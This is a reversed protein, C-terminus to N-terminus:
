LKVGNCLTVFIFSLFGMGALCAFYQALGDDTSLYNHWDPHSHNWAYPAYPPTLEAEADFPQPDVPLDYQNAQTMWTSGNKDFYLYAAQLFPRGLTTIQSNPDTTSRTYCRDPSKTLNGPIIISAEGNNFTVEMDNGCMWKPGVATSTQSSPLVIADSQLDVEITTNMTTAPGQIKALFVNHGEELFYDAGTVPRLQKWSKSAIRNADYVGMLTLSGNWVGKQGFNVGCPATPIMASSAADQYSSNSGLFLNPSGHSVIKISGSGDATSTATINAVFGTSSLSEVSLNPGGIQVEYVGPISAGDADVSVNLGWPISADSSLGVLPWAYHTGTATLAPSATSPARKLRVSPSAEHSFALRIFPVTAWLANLLTRRFYM